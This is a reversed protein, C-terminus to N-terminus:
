VEIIMWLDQLGSVQLGQPVPGAFRRIDANQKTIIVKFRFLDVLDDLIPLILFGCMALIEFLRFYPSPLCVVGVGDATFM